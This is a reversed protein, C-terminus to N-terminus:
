IGRFTGIAQWVRSASAFCRGMALLPGTPHSTGLFVTIESSGVTVELWFRPGSIRAVCTQEEESFVWNGHVTQKNPSSSRDSGTPAKCRNATATATTAAATSRLHVRDIIGSPCMGRHGFSRTEM